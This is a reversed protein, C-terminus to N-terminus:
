ARRPRRSIKTPFPQSEYRRLVWRMAADELTPLVPEALARRELWEILGPGTAREDLQERLARERQVVAALEAKRRHLEELAAQLAPPEPARQQRFTAAMRPRAGALVNAAKYAYCAL